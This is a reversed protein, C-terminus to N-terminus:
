KMSIIKSKENSSSIIIIINNKNVNENTSLKMNTIPDDKEGDENNIINNHHYVLSFSSPQKKLWAEQIINQKHAVNVQSFVAGLAACVPELTCRM